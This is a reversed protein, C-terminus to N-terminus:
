CYKFYIEFGKNAELYPITNKYVSKSVKKILRQYHDRFLWKLDFKHYLLRGLVFKLLAYLVFDVDLNFMQLKDTLTLDECEENIINNDRNNNNNNDRNKSNTLECVITDQINPNSIYFLTFGESMYPSQTFGCYPGLGCKHYQCDGIIFASFLMNGTYSSDIFFDAFYYPENCDLPSPLPTISGSGSTVIYKAQVDLEIDGNPSVTISEVRYESIPSSLTRFTIESNSGTNFSIVNVNQQSAIPSIFINLDNYTIGVLATTNGGVTITLLFNSGSISASIDLSVINNNCSTFDFITSQGVSVTGTKECQYM